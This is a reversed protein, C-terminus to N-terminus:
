TLVWPRGMGRIVAELADFGVPKVLYSRVGLAYAERVDDAEDDASLIVVPVDAMCPNRRMWRVVELGSSGPMRRDLVVLAPLCSRGAARRQLEAIALDGDALEVVPNALGLRALRETVQRRADPDADAVLVPRAGVARHRTRTPTRSQLVAADKTM